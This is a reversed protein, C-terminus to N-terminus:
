KVKRSSRWCIKHGETTAGTATAFKGGREQEKSREREREREREPENTQKGDKAPM